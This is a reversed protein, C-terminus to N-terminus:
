DVLPSEEKCRANMWMRASDTRPIESMARDVFAYAIARTHTKSALRALRALIPMLAAWRRQPLVGRATHIEVPDEQVSVYIGEPQIRVSQRRPAPIPAVNMSTMVAEQLPLTEQTDPLVCASLRDM